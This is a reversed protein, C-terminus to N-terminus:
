GDRIYVRNDWSAEINPQTPDVSRYGISLEDVDDYLPIQIDLRLSKVSKGVIDEIGPIKHYPDGRKKPKYAAIITGKDQLSNIRGMEPQELSAVHPGSDNIQYRSVLVKYDRMSKVKSRRRWYAICAANQNGDLWGRSNSGLTWNDTIYTHLHTFSFPYTGFEDGASTGCVQYPMKKDMALSRIYDPCHFSQFAISPIFALDWYHPYEMAVDLQTYVSHSFVKYMQSRAISTAGVLGDHYVRSFPGALQGINPNYRTALDLWLREELIMAKIKYEENKTYNAIQALPAIDVGYYTPSNFESVTGIPLRIIGDLIEQLKEYGHTAAAMNDLIEGGLILVECAQLPWNINYLRTSRTWHWSGEKIHELLWNKLIELSEKALNHPFDHLIILADRTNGSLIMENALILSEDDGKLMLFLPTEGPCGPYTQIHKEFLELLQRSGEKEQENFFRVTELGHWESASFTFFCVDLCSFM